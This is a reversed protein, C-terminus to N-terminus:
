KNSIKLLRTILLKSHKFIATKVLSEDQHRKSIIEQRILATSRLRNLFSGSFPRTLPQNTISNDVTTSAYNIIQLNTPDSSRHESFKLTACSNTKIRHPSRKIASSQSMGIGDNPKISKASMSGKPLVSFTDINGSLDRSQRSSALNRYSRLNDRSNKIDEITKKQKDLSEKVRGTRHRGMRVDFRRLICKNKAADNKKSEILTRMDRNDDDMSMILKQVKDQSSYNKRIDQDIFKDWRYGRWQAMGSQAQFERGVKRSLELRNTLDKSSSTAPRRPQSMVRIKQSDISDQTPKETSKDIDQDEIAPKFYKEFIVMPVIMLESQDRKIIIEKDKLHFPAEYLTEAEPSYGLGESLVNLNNESLAVKAGYRLKRLRCFEAIKGADDLKIDFLGVLFGRKYVRDAKTLSDIM